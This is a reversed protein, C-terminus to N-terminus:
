SVSWKKRGSQVTVATLVLHWSANMWWCAEEQHNKALFEHLSPVANAYALANGISRPAARYSEFLLDSSASAAPLPIEVKLLVRKSDLVSASELFEQIKVKETERGNLMYVSADAALLLTAIDSPFKRSQAM